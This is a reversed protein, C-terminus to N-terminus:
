AKYHLGGAGKGTSVGQLLKRGPATRVILNHLQKPPVGPPAATKGTAVPQLSPGPLPRATRPSQVSESALWAAPLISTETLLGGGLGPRNQKGRGVGGASAMGRCAREVWSCWGSTLGPLSYCSVCLFGGLPLLYGPWGSHAEHMGALLAEATASGM